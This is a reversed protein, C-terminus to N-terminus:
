NKIKKAIEKGFTNAMEVAIKINSRKTKSKNNPKMLWYERSDILRGGKEKILEELIRQSRKTAGSGLTIAVVKKEKLHNDNNVYDRIAKDPAWNYTNACFVYLDFQEKERIEKAAAVTSLISLWENEALGKAFSRSIKEDLNYIPDPDYIILAKYENISSGIIAIREAGKKRVVISLTIWIALILGIVLLLSNMKKRKM